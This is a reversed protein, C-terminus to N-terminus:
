GSRLACRTASPGAVGGAAAVLGITKLRRWSNDEDNSEDKGKGNKGDNGDSDAKAGPENKGLDITM